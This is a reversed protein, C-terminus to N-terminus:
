AMLGKASLACFRFCVTLLQALIMQGSLWYPNVTSEHQNLLHQPISRYAGPCTVKRWFISAGLSWPLCYFSASATTAASLSALSFM